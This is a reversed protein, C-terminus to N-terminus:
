STPYLGLGRLAELAAPLPDGATDVEIGFPPWSAAMREYVAVDADSADGHRAALRERALDPALRCHLVGFPVAWSRAVEDFARREDASGFTADVVVRGAESLIAEARALCEAYTRRTFEPAYLADGGRATEPLGALRKRVVDSRVVEFGAREALARALTTKGSGPLGAVLLLAPRREPPELAALALLWFGRARRRSREREDAPVEAEQAKLDQVKGRVAARYSVYLPLLRRGEADGSAEFWADAFADALDRRREHLFDMVLFAMDAVPDAHRLAANCEIGDLVAWKGPPFFYVHELRLDGHTDCPVGRSARDDIRPGLEALTEDLRARLREVVSPRVSRAWRLNERANREVAERRAADAIEPGREAAAHVEAIRRGLTRALAADIGGARVRHLLHHDDPLRRMEVAWEVAEGEGGLRPRGDRLIVPRVGLYVGPAWRRNVRVEEECFRRRKELTGYDLFELTVPKKVKYVRDGALFVASIHTQRVEVRAPPPDYADPRSLGAIIEEVRM